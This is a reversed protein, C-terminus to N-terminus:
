TFPPKVQPLQGGANNGISFGGNVQIFPVGEIKSGLGSHIGCDAPSTAGAACAANLTASDSVGTFCFAAAAGSGCSAQIANTKTPSDFKLQGERFFTFRLENVSRSGITSSHSAN